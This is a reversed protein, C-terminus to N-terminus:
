SANLKEIFHPVLSEFYVKQSKYGPHQDVDSVTDIQMKYLPNYLNLWNSPNIGGHNEYENHIKNYLKIIDEDDRSAVSLIEHEYPTLEQPLKITKRKFFNEGIDSLTNIFCIKNNALKTLINSYIVLDLLGNHDSRYKLLENGIKQIHKKNIKIGSNLNIDWPNSLITTTNYLELGFTYTIRSISSWGVIVFDFQNNLLEKATRKFIQANDNGASATNVIEASFCQSKILQNVWLLPDLEEQHLGAGKTISCGDVLFKM